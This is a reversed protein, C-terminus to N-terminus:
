PLCVPFAVSLLGQLSRIVTKSSRGSGPDLTCIVGDCVWPVPTGNASRGDFAFTDHRGFAASQSWSKDGFDRVILTSSCIFSRPFLACTVVCGSRTITSGSAFGLRGSFPSKPRFAFLLNWFGLGKRSPLQHHILGHRSSTVSLLSVLFRM